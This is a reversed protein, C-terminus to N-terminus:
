KNGHMVSHFKDTLKDQHDIYDTEIYTVFRSVEFRECVTEIEQRCEFPFIWASKQLQKFGLMKLKYTLHNRGAKYQEPIDFMVLRWKGDWKKPKEIAMNDFDAKKVRRRGQKTIILGHEYDGTILGQKKMYNTLRRLERERSRKDMKKFYLKLRKDFVKAANPAVLISMIVGGAITFNLIGDIVASTEDNKAM